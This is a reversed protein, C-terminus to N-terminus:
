GVFGRLYVAQTGAPEHLGQVFRATPLDYGGSFEHYHARVAGPRYSYVQLRQDPACAFALHGHRDHLDGKLGPGSEEILVALGSLEAVKEAVQRLEPARGNFTAEGMVVGM